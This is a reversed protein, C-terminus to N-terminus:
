DILNHQKALKLWDPFEGFLKSYLDSDSARSLDPLQFFNANDILRGDLSDLEKLFRFSAAGIGVFQFFVGHNSIDRLAKKTEEHDSNEGDTIFIVYVPYKLKNSKKGFGLKSLLGGGQTYDSKIKEIPPAYNTGGFHYHGIIERQVLEEVNEVTVNNKHKKCNDEFLYLEFEQNDDFQMAVPVIRELTDQVDGRSYLSDMSYSIDMCLVVQAKQNEIGKGKILNFVMEKRLNLKKLDIM